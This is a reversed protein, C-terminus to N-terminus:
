QTKIHFVMEYFTDVYNKPAVWPGTLPTSTIGQQYDAAGWWHLVQLNPDYKPGWSEDMSYLVVNYPKGEINVEEFEGYGGGYERQLCPIISVQEFGIGSNVEVSFSKVGKKGKKTTIMIVGNQGRSGYLASAASGKLVEVSEVDYSNLDNIMSDYDYGGGIQTNVDNFNENSVPVGDVVFLPQNNQSFSSAGRIL